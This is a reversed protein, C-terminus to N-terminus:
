AAPCTAGAWGMVTCYTGGSVKWRGEVILATGNQEGFDAGGRYTIHFRLAAHWPDTFVINSTTVAASATAEPFNHTAQALARALAPGGQVAALSYAPDQGGTFAQAYAQQVALRAAAPNLPQPGAKTPCTAGAWSMVTCYTARSVKWRGNSIVATGDREGFDAGGQYTIHFRLGAQRPERLFINGVTVKATRTAQPFNHIAEALTSALEPGDEVAALSYAPDQGGTFARAYAASIAAKTRPPLITRSGAGAAAAVQAPVLAAATAVLLVLLGALRGRRHSRTIRNDAPLPGPEDCMTM